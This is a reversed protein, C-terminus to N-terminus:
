IVDVDSPHSSQKWVSRLHLCCMCKGDDRNDDLREATAATTAYNTKAGECHALSEQLLIMLTLLTCKDTAMQDQHRSERDRKRNKTEACDPEDHIVM